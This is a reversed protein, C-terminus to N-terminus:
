LTLQNVDFIVHDIYTPFCIYVCIEGVTSVIHTCTHAHTCIYVCIYRYRHIYIYCASILTVKFFIFYYFISQIHRHKFTLSNNRVRKLVMTPQLFLNLLEHPHWDSGIVNLNEQRPMVRGRFTWMIESVSFKSFKYGWRNHHKDNWSGKVSLYNLCM